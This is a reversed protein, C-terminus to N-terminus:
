ALFKPTCSLKLLLKFVFRPAPSACHHSCQHAGPEIRLVSLIHALNTTPEKEAGLPKGGPVGTKGKGRFGASGFELEVRFAQVTLVHAKPEPSQAVV